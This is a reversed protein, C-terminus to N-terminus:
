SRRCDACNGAWAVSVLTAERSRHRMGTQTNTHSHVHRMGPVLSHEKGGKIRKGVSGADTSTNEVATAHVVPEHMHPNTGGRGNEV